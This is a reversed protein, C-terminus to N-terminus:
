WFSAPSMVKEDTVLHLLYCIATAITIFAAFIKVTIKNNGIGTPETKAKLYTYLTQCGVLLFYAHLPISVWSPSILLLLVYLIILEMSWMLPLQLIYRADNILGSSESAASDKETSSATKRNNNSKQSFNYITLSEHCAENLCSLSLPLGVLVFSIWTSLM